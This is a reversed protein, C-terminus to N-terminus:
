SGHCDLVLFGPGTSWRAAAKQNSASMLSATAALESRVNLVPNTRLITLAKKTRTDEEHPYGIIKTACV